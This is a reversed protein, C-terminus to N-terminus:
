CEFCDPWDITSFLINKFPFLLDKGRAQHNQLASVNTFFEDSRPQCKWPILVILENRESLMSMSYGVINQM